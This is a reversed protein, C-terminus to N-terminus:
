PDRKRHCRSVVASLEVIPHPCVCFVAAARFLSCSDLHPSQATGVIPIVSKLGWTERCIEKNQTVGVDDIADEWDNSGADRSPADTRRYESESDYFRRALM